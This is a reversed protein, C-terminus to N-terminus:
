YILRTVTGAIMRAYISWNINDVEIGASVLTDMTETFNSDAIRQKERRKTEDSHQSACVSWNLIGRAEQIAKLPTDMIHECCSLRSGMDFEIGCRTPPTWQRALLRGLHSWHFLFGSMVIEVSQRVNACFLVIAICATTHRTRKIFKQIRKVSAVVKQADALTPTLHYWLTKTDKM